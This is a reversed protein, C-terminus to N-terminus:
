STGCKWTWMKPPRGSPRMSPLSCHAAGDEESRRQREGGGEGHGLLRRALGPQFEGLRGFVADPCVLQVRSQARLRLSLNGGHLRRDTTRGLRSEPARPTAPM